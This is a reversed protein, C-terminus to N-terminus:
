IKIVVQSFEKIHKRFRFSMYTYVVATDILSNKKEVDYIIKYEKELGKLIAVHLEITFAAIYLIISLCATRNIKRHISM